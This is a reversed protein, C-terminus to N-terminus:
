HHFLGAQERGRSHSGCRRTRPPRRRRGSSCPDPLLPQWAVSGPIPTDELGALDGGTALHSEFLVAGSEAFTFGVLGIKEKGATLADRGLYTVKVGFRLFATMIARSYRNAVIEPSIM